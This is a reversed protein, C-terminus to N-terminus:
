PLNLPNSQFKTSLIPNPKTDCWTIAPDLELGDLEFSGLKWNNTKLAAVKFQLM